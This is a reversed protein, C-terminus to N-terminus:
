SFSTLSNAIDIVFRYKVDGKSLREMATNVYNIPILEIDAIINHKSAFDIMEQMEKVGGVCSGGVIKRGIMILRM